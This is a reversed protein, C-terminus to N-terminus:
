KTRKIIHFGFPTEVISQTIENVKLDFAAKSFAEAMGEFKFEGLDGGKDKSPGDSHEKALEAFNEPTTLVQSLVNEAKEKAQEKTVGKVESRESGEYSILIHSASIKEPKDNLLDNLPTSLKKALDSSIEYVWGEHRKFEEAKDRNQLMIDKKKLEEDSAGKLSQVTVQEGSYEAGVKAFYKEDKKAITIQYSLGSNLHLHYTTNHVLDLTDSALQYDIFAFSNLAEFVKKIEDEKPYKGSPLNVLELAGEKSKNITYSQGDTSTSVKLVDASDFSIINKDVYDLAQNDIFISDKSVYVQENSGLRVYTGQGNEVKNGIIIVSIEKDSSDLFRILTTASEISVGLTNHKSTDTAFERDCTIDLVKNILANYQTDSVEYNHKNEITFKKGNRLLHVDENTPTKIIVKNIADTDIDNLLPKGKNFSFNTQPSISGISVAIVIAVVAIISHIYFNKDNM